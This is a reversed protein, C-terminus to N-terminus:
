STIGGLRMGYQAAALGRRAQNSVAAKNSANAMALTQQQAQQQEPTMALGYRQYNRAIMGPAISPTNLGENVQRMGANLLGGRSYDLLSLGQQRVDTMAGKNKGYGDMLEKGIDWNARQMPSLGADPIAGGSGGGMGM